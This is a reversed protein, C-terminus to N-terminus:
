GVQDSPDLIYRGITLRKVSYKVTKGVRALDAFGNGGVHLGDSWLGRELTGIGIGIATREVIDESLPDIFRKGVGDHDREVPPDGVGVGGGSPLEASPGASADDSGLDEVEHM